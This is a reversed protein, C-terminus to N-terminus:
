WAPVSVVERDLAAIEFLRDVTNIGASFEEVSDGLADFRFEGQENVPALFVGDWFVPYAAPAGELAGYRGLITIVTGMAKVDEAFRDPDVSGNVPLVLTVMDTPVEEGTSRQVQLRVTMLRWAARPDEFAVEHGEGGGPALI